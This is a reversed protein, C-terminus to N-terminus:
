RAAPSSSSRPYRPWRVAERRGIDFGPLGIEDRARIEEGRGPTPTTAAAVPRGEAVGRRRGGHGGGGGGRFLFHPRDRPAERLIAQTVQAHKFRGSGVGVCEIHVRRQVGRKLARRQRVARRVSAIDRLSMIVRARTAGDGGNRGSFRGSLHVTLGRRDGTRAVAGDREIWASGTNQGRHRRAETAGKEGGGRSM